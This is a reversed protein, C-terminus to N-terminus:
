EFSPEINLSRQISVSTPKIKRIIELFHLDDTNTPKGITKVICKSFFIIGRCDFNKSISDEWLQSVLEKVDVFFNRLFPDINDSTVYKQYNKPLLAIVEKTMPSVYLLQELPTFYFKLNEVRYKYLEDFINNFYELSIQDLYMLLHQILPARDYRYYWRNVYTRDNFYYNFVWLLGELYHHMVERAGSSLKGNKDYLSVGFYEQYFNKIKDQTLDLPQANFKFYYEDLMNRFKYIEKQYENLNKEKIRNQHHHDLISRSYTNLNINLKPFKQYKRYYNKLLKILDGNTLYTTNVVQDDMVIYLSKKLSNMFRNHTLFYVVSLNQRIAHKLEEYKRHFDQYISVLNEEDIEVYDFVNKIQGMTVYQAYLKNHKVFDDEEPLLNRIINKLFIFNLRYVNKNRKVLYYGKDKLLHLTKLYADLINQFGKKVNLTEIKPVFDNGFLTSMCVIDYNIRGIDFNSRPYISNNNIYYSINSKLLRIDILDYSDMKKEISSQQNYRLLYLKEVPLIMCLLIMDADPSCIMISEKTNALYKNIYNVIKIEGEGVEYVDSLIIELKPRNIKIKEQINKNKLYTVLKHMFATGPTIKNRSWTIAYKTALYIYDPQDKLYKKYSRLIMKEYEIAIAGLYRRQRQELMKGKSPVGDMALVLTKVSGNYCYTRILRLITNIVLTIVLKDLFEDTFHEKFMKAVTEGKVYQKIKQYVDKMKYKRFREEFYPGAISLGNYLNKLVMQFFLNIDELIKQSSSHILSNFDILMHNITLKNKYNPYISTATIGNKILTGFFEIIGM